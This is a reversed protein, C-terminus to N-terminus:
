KMENAFYRKIIKQHEWHSNKPFNGLKFWNPTVTCSPLLMKEKPKGGVIKALFIYRIFKEKSEPNLMEDIFIPAGVKVEYGADEKAERIATAGPSENCCNIIKLKDDCCKGGPLGWRRTPRLDHLERTEECVLLIEQETIPKGNNRICLVFASHKSM